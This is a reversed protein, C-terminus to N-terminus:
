EGLQLWRPPQLSRSDLIPNHIILISFLCGPISPQFTLSILKIVLGKDVFGAVDRGVEEVIEEAKRWRSSEVPVIYTGGIFLQESGIEIKVWILDEQKSRRVEKSQFRKDVMITVGGSGKDFRRMWRVVSYTKYGKRQAIKEFKISHKQYFHTETWITIHVQKRKM